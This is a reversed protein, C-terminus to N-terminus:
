DRAIGCRSLQPHAPPTACLSPHPHCHTHTKMPGQLLILITHLKLPPPDKIQSPPTPTPKPTHTHTKLTANCLLILTNLHPPPTDKMPSTHTHTHKHTHTHTNLARREHQCTYTDSCLHITHHCM